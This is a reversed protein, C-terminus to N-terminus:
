ITDTCNGEYSVSSSDRLQHNKMEYPNKEALDLMQGDANTHFSISQPKTKIKQLCSLLPPPSSEYPLRTFGYSMGVAHM